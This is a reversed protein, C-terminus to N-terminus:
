SGRYETGAHAPRFLKRSVGRKRSIRSDLSEPMGCRGDYEMLMVFGVQSM